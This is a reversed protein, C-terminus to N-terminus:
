KKGADEKLGVTRNFVLHNASTDPDVSFFGIREFQFKDYVKAQNLARDAFAVVVSISQESIDSLFGGPVENPDEPNKHKFLQEYLRVELQIPQSVWQVFAKPKEAQEAPQSTCILEVVQGTAPDKVIEDVSIVLGAHRLGVSQKPALRRYGKEPELKFDGQEIYIVKDLTIKHTGQQPNQPFDPVELQVPADHPFNKITVKLPELVVLRRPATVNLVDRVAAELMAPDVAIQAGTVGMQACFNNIAEAPFGRRRLATLTFLRPDDWDHVIQETILKAIKRKSVLAYNMNLRGYEWQVPCYIGLANCLWYYSSRRSQFEKTCLSHTIDELSDCLCHTYDYTPYICWDSGTRHHSIFKIRYAVPDMKGEELTVKMRLTAAGEDIKGRKMDEFLRLSEEIPRERWPSPKPNFGKLEEAKQHCVYALGKNILVVAWEYLQQFNDSSYTIKFPKYGLWEVMEKIALFFKEEEKEPNTDDYRLYCVGDHAAAYGFNINIAKAHGIHLIGNPEPPFRTHVKGGTRALHEKLLRETHETVVYGDAKFNEGPAHFHVKTKMLESITTAGDSAAEATQAAPTVEAKPKAAKPKDNAKTPPKLDAETKPGLLDFIEVDIAAKVSKADAWKLDGRVDQLIKFSNFHYRQELLAEKYSAKIKAQVTREIQEPTVVVGVGCEKELAQVDINANLSQGCKLLYELAADVRQTNDLKHEVIYRVLLPLHDATQPKLKTAMHYILMGTGDSLTAGGAAALALQLNKTVNANKLTEKAKQESMGLVQFKAILDDGAM